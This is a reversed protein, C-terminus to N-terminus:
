SKPQAALGIYKGTIEQPQQESHQAPAVLCQRCFSLFDNLSLSDFDISSSIVNPIQVKSFLDGFAEISFVFWAYREEETKLDLGVVRRELFVMRSIGDASGLRSAEWGPLRGGRVFTDKLEDMSHRITFEVEVQVM